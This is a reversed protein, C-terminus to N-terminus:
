AFEVPKIKIPSKTEESEISKAMATFDVEMKSEDESKLNISINEFHLPLAIPPVDDYQVLNFTAGEKM